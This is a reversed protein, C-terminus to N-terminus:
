FDIGQDRLTKELKISWTRLYDALEETLKDGIARWSARAQDRTRFSDALKDFSAKYTTAESTTKRILEVQETGIGKSTELTKLSNALEGYADAWKEAVNQTEGEAKTFGRVGFDRRLVACANLKELTTAGQELLDRKSAIQSLGRWGVGGLVASLLVLTGFGLAMKTALKMNKFM